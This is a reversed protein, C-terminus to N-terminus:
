LASYTRQIIIESTIEATNMTVSVVGYKQGNVAGSNITEFENM